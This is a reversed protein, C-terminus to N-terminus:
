RKLLNDIFNKGNDCQKSYKNKISNITSKEEITGLPHKIENTKEQPVYKPLTRKQNSVVQKTRNYVVNNKPNNIKNMVTNIPNKSSADKMKDYTTKTKKESKITEHGLQAPTRRVGWKMGLIGHHELFYNNM